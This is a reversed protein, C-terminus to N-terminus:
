YDCKNKDNESIFDTLLTWDSPNFLWIILIFSLLSQQTTPKTQQYWFRSIGLNRKQVWVEPSGACYYMQPRKRYKYDNRDIIRLKAPCTHPQTYVCCYVAEVSM